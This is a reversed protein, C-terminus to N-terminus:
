EAAARISGQGSAPAPRGPFAPPFRRAASGVAKFLIDDLIAPIEFVARNRIREVSSQYDPLRALLDMVAHRVEGFSGLIIGAHHQRVWDTNYREQAMTFANRVVIVPLRQQIAESISGPGPKGIFFDSLRMLYPIQSTFGVVARPADAQMARLEDALQSNHGCVLILQIDRLSNAVRRMVKSGHAGFLVIGIPRAPDFGLKRQECQRELNSQRYFEPGIIMGSTRHIREDGYGAERAQAVALDTACVLHQAQGPEIWFHPPLDAFDTMVAVFPVGPRAASIAEDMARNFNPVMSVVLDPETRRWHGMLRTRLSAHSFRFFAQLVKLEQALGLTWGRELRANYYQEPKIGTTKGFVDNPDLVEFLNILRARWPRKQEHIVTELALAAARHGGGANCYVLDITKM